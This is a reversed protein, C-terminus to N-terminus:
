GNTAYDNLIAREARKMIAPFYAFAADDPAPLTISTGGSLSTAGYQATATFGTAGVAIQLSVSQATTITGTSRLNLLIRRARSLAAILLPFAGADDTPLTAATGGTITANRKVTVTFNGSGDNTALAAWSTAAAM